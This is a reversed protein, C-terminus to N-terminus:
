RRLAPHWTLRRGPEVDVELEAAGITPHAARLRHRGAPLPLDQPTEGVPRGDVSVTAWPHVAVLV